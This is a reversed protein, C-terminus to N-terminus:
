SAGLTVSSQQQLWFQRYVKAQYELSVNETSVSHNPLSVEAGQPASGPTQEWPAGGGGGIRPVM